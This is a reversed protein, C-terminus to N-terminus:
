SANPRPVVAEVHYNYPTQEDGHRIVYCKIGAVVKENHITVVEGTAKLTGKCPFTINKKAM